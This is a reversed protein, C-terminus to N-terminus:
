GPAPADGAPRLRGTGHRPMTSRRIPRRLASSPSTRNSRLHRHRNSHTSPRWRTGALPEPCRPWGTWSSAPVRPLGALATSLIHQRRQTLDFDLETLRAVVPPIPWGAILNGPDPRDDRVLAGVVGLLLPHNGLSAFFSAMVQATGEVGLQALLARADADTLGALRLRRVGRLEHGLPDEFTKPM